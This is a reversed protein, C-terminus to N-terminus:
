VDISYDLTLEDGPKGRIGWNHAPTESLTIELDLPSISFDKEFRSFLLEYLYKKAQVSRGEFLSIEIITYRETRESPYYFNDKTMEFFRHFRKNAPVQFASVICSHVCDSIQTKLPALHEKLGYIKVQAM